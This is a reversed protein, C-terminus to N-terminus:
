TLPITEDLDKREPLFLLPNEKAEELSLMKCAQGPPVLELGPHVFIIVISNLYVSHHMNLIFADGIGLADRVRGANNGLLAKTMQEGMAVYECPVVVGIRRSALGEIQEYQEM